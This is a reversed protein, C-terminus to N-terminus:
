KKYGMYKFGDSVGRQLIESLIVGTINAKCEPCIILWVKEALNVRFMWSEFGDERTLHPCNIVTIDSGINNLANAM